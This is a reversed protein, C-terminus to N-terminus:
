TRTPFVFEILTVSFLSMSVEMTSPPLLTQRLRLIPARKLVNKQRTRGNRYTERIM